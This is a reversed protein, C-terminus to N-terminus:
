DIIKPFLGQMLGKKHKKLQEVKETQAKILADLSSLFYAIKTQETLSKPMILEVNRLEDLGIRKRTSGSAKNEIAERLHKSNILSYVFYKSYRTENVVLRIGDSAM